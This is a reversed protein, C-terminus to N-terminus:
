SAILFNIIEEEFCNLARHVELLPKLYKLKCNMFLASFNGHERKLRHQVEHFAWTTQLIKNPLRISMEMNQFKYKDNFQFPFLIIRKESGCNLIRNVM